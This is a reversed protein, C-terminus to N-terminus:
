YYENAFMSQFLITKSMEKAINYEIRAGKSNKWNDLMFISDCGFLLNIDELMYQEWTKEKKYPVERMPNVIEINDYNTMLYHEANKFKKTAETIDLGTIKGSIYIRKSSSVNPKLPLNCKCCTGDSKLTYKGEHHCFLQESQGVVVPIALNKVIILAVEDIVAGILGRNNLLQEKTFGRSLLQQKVKNELEM